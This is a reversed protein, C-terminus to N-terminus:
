TNNKRLRELLVETTLKEQEGSEMNKFTLEGTEMENSGILVVYPVNRQNAYKMQKKLKVPDPYLEANIGAARLQNLQGFAYQHSKEDFAIFLVQLAEASAAPYLNLEELM